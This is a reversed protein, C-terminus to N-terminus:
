YLRIPQEFSAAKCSHDSYILSMVVSHAWREGYSFPEHLDFSHAPLFSGPSWAPEHHGGPQNVLPDQFDTSATNWPAPADVPRPALPSEHPLPEPYPSIRRGNNLYSPTLL